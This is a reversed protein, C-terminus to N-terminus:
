KSLSGRLGVVEEHLTWRLAALMGPVGQSEVSQSVGTWLRQKRQLGCLFAILWPNRCWREEFGNRDESCTLGSVSVCRRWTWSLTSVTPLPEEACTSSSRCASLLRVWHPQPHPLQYHSECIQRQKIGLFMFKKNTQKNTQKNSSTKASTNCVNLSKFSGQTIETFRSTIVLTRPLPSLNLYSNSHKLFLM